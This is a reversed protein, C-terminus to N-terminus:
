LKRIFKAPNGGWLEDAPVDKVVVSGAAIISHEGISVGKGIICRAGVFAHNGIHIPATKRNERDKVGDARDRWNTSHFDTDFITCGGGINVYNGITIEQQCFINTNSIGSYDGIHLVAGPSVVITSCASPEIGYGRGRIIFAKGIQVDASKSVTMKVKGWFQIDNQFRVNKRLLYGKYCASSLGRSIASSFRSIAAVIVNVLQYIM